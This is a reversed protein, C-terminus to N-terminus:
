RTHIGGSENESNVERYAYFFLGPGLMGLCLIGVGFGSVGLDFGQVGLGSVRLPERLGYAM